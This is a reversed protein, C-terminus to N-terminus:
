EDDVFPGEGIHDSIHPPVPYVSEQAVRLEAWRERSTRDRQEQVFATLDMVRLLEGRANDFVRDRWQGKLGLQVARRSRVPGGGPTHDPDWQLTVRQGSGSRCQNKHQEYEKKTQLRSYHCSGMSTALIEEFLSRKIWLGVTGTQRAKTGWGSRYQMWLFNTKVWSMRQPDWSTEREAQRFTQHKAAYSVIDSEFAAYVLIADDTYQALVFKGMDPWTERIKLYPAVAFDLQKGAAGSLCTEDGNVIPLCPVGDCM